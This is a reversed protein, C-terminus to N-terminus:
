HANRDGIRDHGTSSKRLQRYTGAAALGMRPMNAYIAEFQGAAVKYTEHWVGVHGNYATRKFFAKQAPKHQLDSNNAWNMLEDFSRWYQVFFLVRWDSVSHVTISELLPSNPLTKAEKTMAFAARLAPWWQNVRWLQNVRLGILLVVFEDPYNATYRAAKIDM